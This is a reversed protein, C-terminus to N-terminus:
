RSAIVVVRPIDKKEWFASRAGHHEVALENLRRRRQLVVHSLQELAHDSLDAETSVAALSDLASTGDVFAFLANGLLCPAEQVSQHRAFVLPHRNFCPGLAAMVQGDESSTDKSVSM